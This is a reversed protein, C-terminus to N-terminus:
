SRYVVVPDGVQVEDFLSELAAYDRVNVCGHSAGAYGQAAFDSSYHVAQGGSFFMSFPMASGYLSSVHDRNKFKVTFAGERTPTYEAGFRVDITRLVTGDVVWRLTRSTKDICLVRGTLCRADLSGPVNHGIRNALEDATPEHTMALLRDMTERDVAGTVAIERKAQFGRVAATTVDGYYGTVDTNFWSIQRLRAQLARVDDGEDGAGILVPGGQLPPAPEPKPKPTPKPKPAVTVDETPAPPTPSATEPAATPTEVVTPSPGPAATVPDDRGVWGDATERFDSLDAAYAIGLGTTALAVLSLLALATRRLATM